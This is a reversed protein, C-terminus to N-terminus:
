ESRSDNHVSEGTREPLSEESITTNTSKSVNVNLEVIKRTTLVLERIQKEEIQAELGVQQRPRGELMQWMLERNEKIFYEIIEKLEKPNKKLRKMIETKISVSGKPKGPGPPKGKVFKGTKKDRDKIKGKKIPEKIDQQLDVM